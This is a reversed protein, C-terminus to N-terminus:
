ACVYTVHIPAIPHGHWMDLKVCVCPKFITPMSKKAVISFAVRGGRGRGTKASEFREQPTIEKMHGITISRNSPLM